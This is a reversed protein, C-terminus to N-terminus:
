LLFLRDSELFKKYRLINVTRCDIVVQFDFNGIQVLLLEKTHPDMGGTETDLGVENLTELLKLSDEVTIVKYLSNDFLLQNNTVLYIM